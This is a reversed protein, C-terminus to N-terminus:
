AMMNHVPYVQPSSPTVGVKQLLPILIQGFQQLKEPSEWVDIALLGDEKVSVAHFLRGSQSDGSAELEGLLQEYQEATMGALDFVAIIQNSM